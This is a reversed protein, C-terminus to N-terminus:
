KALKELLIGASKNVEQDNKSLKAAIQLNKLALDKNKQAIYILGLNYYVRADYPKLKKVKELMESAGSLNGQDAYIVAINMYGFVFSPDHEVAKQYLWLAGAIDGRDRLINGLNYYPAPVTNNADVAKWYLEEAEKAKNHDSYYMALNNLARVNDSEYELINKYFEETKGWIINRKVSQSVLFVAYVSFVVMCILFLPKARDELYRFVLDTYHAFLVFFGFLSFYLWHEYILSNIPVIGSTPGLNVFFFGWAFLWLRFTSIKTTDKEQKYFRFLLFVIGAVVLVGLLVPGQFLSTNVLVNREMHLDTPVFILKLYVAIVHFFTYVRYLMNETYFNSERYFNLTNQFNLVTLRLVGYTFSVLWYPWAQIVSTRISEIFKGKRLFSASFIVFYIPFLFATERSLIGLVMFISSVLYGLRLNRDKLTLFSGLALLMFFVSMPDGRGSVYTVAETQLPHTLFLLSAMIAVRKNKLFRDIIFFMLVANTIHVFNNVLHYAIPATGSIIYNAMFTLFLFPRYYNSVLGIGSLASHSFIFKVNSWSFSQVYPNNVIWDEDDWFLQNNLNFSYLYFGVVVLLTGIILNQKSTIM